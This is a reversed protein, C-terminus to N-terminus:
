SEELARARLRSVDDWTDSDAGVGRADVVSAVDLAGIAARVPADPALGNLAAALADHRYVGCLYQQRGDADVLVAGDREMAAVRLEDILASDILPLDVALVAVWSAGAHQLGTQLGTQLATQLAAVPGAGAPSEQRWLVQRSTPQQPGVVIMRGAGSVADLVRDLSTRGGFLLSAKDVGGLRRAAGGALVVADFADASM